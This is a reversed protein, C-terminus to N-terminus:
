LWILDSKFSVSLPLFLIVLNVRKLINNCALNYETQQKKDVLSPLLLAKWNLEVSRDALFDLKNNQLLIRGFSTTRFCSEKNQLLLGELIRLSNYLIDLNRTRLSVVAHQSIFFCYYLCLIIIRMNRNWQYFM